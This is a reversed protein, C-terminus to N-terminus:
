RRLREMLAAITEEENKLPGCANMRVKWVQESLSLNEETADSYSHPTRRNSLAKRATDVTESEPISLPMAERALCLDLTQIMVDLLRRSRAHRESARLGRLTPDLDLIKEASQLLQNIKPLGPNKALANKLAQQAQVYNGLVFEAQGLGAYAYADQPTKKIIDRFTQASEAPLQYDLLLFAIQKRISISTPNESLLSLIEVQAQKLRGSKGLFAILEMQISARNSESPNSWRGYISKHYSDIANRIDGKQVAIRGLGLNVPGSDPMERALENFYIQAENWRNARLLATALALRDKSSHSISLASRFNEIAEPYRGTTLLKEGSLAYQYARATHQSRYHYSLFGAITIMLIIVAAIGGLVVRSEKRTQHSEEGSEKDEGSRLASVADNLSLIGILKEPKSRYVIPLVTLGSEEMRLLATDLLQDHFVRPCAESDSLVSSGRARLLDELTGQPSVPHAAERLQAYTVMGRLGNSDVVPWAGAATPLGQFADQINDSSQFVKVPKQLVQNVFIVSDRDRPMTPLRIGDQDMLAEYIPKKQMRCSIFYSILNAIMLPVIISYDRTIEFIMIVSTMPVRIIGAFATGMGVLAYAGVSGTYDPLLHHIGAGFAGGMMAGIFLSPGFIGGANGSAYCTATSIVKLAILLAMTGFVLQNNLAENVHGYGVGLVAPVFLGLVGVLIGGAVPQYAATWSPLKMFYKRLRLLLKVFSTSILGGLLGLLAYFIFEIPHVLQYSPVHFLPEDGLILHLVMWSTASSIVIAGLVRAHLNGLVEELTFLVAAIPTNFAAALAAAAGIPVLAKTNAASLGFQRGLWSAIGAGIQVSPGERGLAIGSALSISSCCFKGIVTRLHIIGSQLFLACKTQPIGSGRAGPFYRLIIIGTILSGAIPVVVRRWATGGAPYMRAGLNETLLIFAVIVLGVVAGIMLTLILLVKDEHQRLHQVDRSEILAQRINKIISLYKM